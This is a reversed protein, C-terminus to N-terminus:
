PAFRRSFSYFILILLVLWGIVVLYVRWWRGLIPPPEDTAGANQRDRQENM